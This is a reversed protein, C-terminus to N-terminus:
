YGIALIKFVTGNPSNINSTTHDMGTMSIETTSLSFGSVSGNDSNNAGVATLCATPFAIPLTFVSGGSGGSVTSTGWQIILGGLWSPFKIYGSATLSSAFGAATAINSMASRVWNTTAVKTSDDANVQTQFVGASRLAALLQGLNAESPAIGAASIVALIERMPHEIAAAPVPSGDIGSGPNADIYPDDVAGGVPPVYKM